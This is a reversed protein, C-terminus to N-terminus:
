LPRQEFSERCSYDVETKSRKHISNVDKLLIDKEGLGVSGLRKEESAQEEVSTRLCFTKKMGDAKHLVVIRPEDSYSEYFNLM